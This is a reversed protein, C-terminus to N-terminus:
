LKPFLRRRYTFDFKSVAKSDSISNLNNVYWRVQLIRPLLVIVKSCAMQKTETQSSLKADFAKIPVTERLEVYATVPLHCFAKPFKMGNPNIRTRQFQKPLSIPSNM